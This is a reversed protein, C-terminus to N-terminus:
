MNKTDKRKYYASIKGNDVTENLKITIFLNFFGKIVFNNYNFTTKKTKKL